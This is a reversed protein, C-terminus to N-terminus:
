QAAAHRMAAQRAFRLTLSKRRASAMSRSPGERMISAGFQDAKILGEDIPLRGCPFDADVAFYFVDCFDLYESWKQDADFDAQCSKVEAMVFQGKRTLGAVDVRRGSPLRFETLVALGM